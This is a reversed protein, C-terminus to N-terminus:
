SKKLGFESRVEATKKIGVIPETCIESDFVPKGKAVFRDIVSLLAETIDSVNEKDVTLSLVVRVVPM